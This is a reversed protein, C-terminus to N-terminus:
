IKGDMPKLGSLPETKLSLMMISTVDLLMKIKTELTGLKHSSGKRQITSTETNTKM